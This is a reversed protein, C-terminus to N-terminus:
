SIRSADRLTCFMYEGEKYTDFTGEVCIQECEEPYDDPYIYDDTLEFEIGQSCCATADSIICSHYIRDSSEDHYVVYMGSMRVTKGIYNEPYCMMNYVESYVMTSSLKTLDVCDENGATVTDAATDAMTDTAPEDPEDAESPEPDTEDISVTESIGQELIDQVNNQNKESFSRDTSENQRCSASLVLAITCASLVLVKKIRM